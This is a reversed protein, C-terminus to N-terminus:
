ITEALDRVHAYIKAGATTSDFDQSDSTSNQNVIFDLWLDVNLPKNEVLYRYNTAQSCMYECIRQNIDCMLKVAVETGCASSNDIGILNDSVGDHVYVKNQVVFSYHFARGKECKPSIKIEHVKDDHINIKLALTGGLEFFYVFGDHCTLYSWRTKSTQWVINIDSLDKNAKYINGMEDTLWVNQGDFILFCWARKESGIKKTVAEKNECDYEFILNSNDHTAFIKGDVMCADLFRFSEGQKLNKRFQRIAEFDYSVDDITAGAEIIAPYSNPFIIRKGSFVFSRMFLQCKSDYGSEKLNILRFAKRQPDYEFIKPERLSVAYIKEDHVFVDGLAWRQNYHKDGDNIFLVDQLEFSSADLCLLGNLRGSIAYVKNGLECVRFIPPLKFSTITDENTLKTLLVPKGAAQYLPVVSSMNGLYGDSAAIARPLDPTDDYIGWKNRKFEEVIAAYEPLFDPSMAKLCEMNLPHPRWWVAVDDRKQFIALVSKVKALMEDVSGTFGAFRTNYLIIKKNGHEKTKLLLNWEDPLILNSMGARALADVKPSGLAVFKDRPNGFRNGFTKKFAKIYSDRVENSQVFIKHAYVCGATLAFVESMGKDGVIFYPL